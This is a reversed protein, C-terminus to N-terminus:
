DVRMPCNPSRGSRRCSTPKSGRRWRGRVYRSRDVAVAALVTLWHPNAVWSGPGQVALLQVQAVAESAARESLDVDGLLRFTIARANAWLTQDAESPGTVDTNDTM